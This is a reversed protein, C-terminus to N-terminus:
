STALIRIPGLLGAPLGSHRFMNGPANRVTIRLHHLGSSLELKHRYPPWPLIIPAMDDVVIEAIDEVRGLDLMYTGGQEIEFTKTYVAKGSYTPYGWDAWDSLIGAEFVKETAAIDPFSRHGHPYSCRFNGYLYPMEWCFLILIFKLLPHIYIATVDGDTRHIIM